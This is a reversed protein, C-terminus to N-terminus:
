YPYENYEKDMPFDRHYNRFFIIINVREGSLVERVGHLNAANGRFMILDGAKLKVEINHHQFYLEGGEYESNLMLICSYHEEVDPKGPYVDGDDDHQENIAGKSMVNGFLRKLEFTNYKMEYNDLFYNYASTIADKLDDYGHYNPDRMNNEKLGYHRYGFRQDFSSDAEEIFKRTLEACRGPTLANEIIHYIETM